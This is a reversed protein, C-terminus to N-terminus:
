KTPLLEEPYAWRIGPWDLGVLYECGLPGKIHFNKDRKNYEMTIVSQTKDRLQCVVAKSKDEPEEDNKRWVNGKPMSDIYHLVTRLALRYYCDGAGGRHLEHLREIEARVKELLERDTM